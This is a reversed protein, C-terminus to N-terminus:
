HRVVVTETRRVAGSEVVLLYPGSPMARTQVLLTHSGAPLMADQVIERVMRGALDYLRLSTVGADGLTLHITLHDDCPAPFGELAFRPLSADLRVDVEHSYTYQGDFDIQKLRYHLISGSAPLGDLDKIFVYTHSESTSGHGEVFGLVTWHGPGTRRQVEFGYNRTEIATTWSLRVTGGQLSASFILLEVPTVIAGTCLGSPDALSLTGYGPNNAFVRDACIQANLPVSITAGTPITIDGRQATLVAPLLLGPVLALIGTLITRPNM